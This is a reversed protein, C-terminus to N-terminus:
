TATVTPTALCPQPHLTFAGTGPQHSPSRAFGRWSIIDTSPRLYQTANPCHLLLHSITLPPLQELLLTVLPLSYLHYLACHPQLQLCSLAEPSFFPHYSILLQPQTIYLRIFFKSMDWPFNNLTGQVGLLDFWDIRFSILRSYENSPSISFSWISPGGSTFLQSIPFSRSAPFSQPCFSFPAVSSSINPHCWQSLPCSNSCVGPSLSSCPLRTHQLGHPWLSDSM